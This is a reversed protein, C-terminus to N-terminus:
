RSIRQLHQVCLLRVASQFRHLSLVSLLNLNNKGDVDPLFAMVPGEEWRDVLTFLIKKYM